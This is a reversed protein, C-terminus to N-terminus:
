NKPILTCVVSRQNPDTPTYQPLPNDFGVGVATVPAIGMSTLIAAAQAARANSLTRASAAPGIAATRGVCEARTYGGPHQKWAAALPTLAAVAAERDLFQDSDPKFNGGGLAVPAPNPPPPTCRTTCPPVPTPDAINAIVPANPAGVAAPGPTADTNVSVLQAGMATALRQWYETRWASTITNLSQQSGAAATFVAHLQAGPVKPVQKSIDDVAQSPEGALSVRANTPDVTGLGFGVYYITFPQGRPPAQEAAAAFLPLINRGPETLHISEAQGVATNVRDDATQDRVQTDTEAQGDRGIKMDAQAAVQAGGGSAVIFKVSGGGSAALQEASQNLSGRLADLGNGAVDADVNQLVLIEGYSTPVPKQIAALLAAVIVAAVAIAAVTLWRPSLTPRKPSAAAPYRPRTSLTTNM